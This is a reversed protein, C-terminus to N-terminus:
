EYYGEKWEKPQYDSDLDITRSELREDFEEWLLALNGSEKLRIGPAEQHASLYINAIEQELRVSGMKAIVDKM